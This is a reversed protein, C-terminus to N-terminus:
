DTYEVVEYTDDLWGKTVKITVIDANDTVEADLNRLNLDMIHRGCEPCLVRKKLANAININSMPYIAGCKCQVGSEFKVSM